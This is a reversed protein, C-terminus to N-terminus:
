TLPPTLLGHRQRLASDRQQDSSAMKPKAAPRTTVYVFLSLKTLSKGGGRLRINM